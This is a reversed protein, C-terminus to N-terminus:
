TEVLVNDSKVDAHVVGSAHSEELGDLLQTVIDIARTVSMPAHEVVLRGLRPGVIREMVLYPVGDVQGYDFVSVVNRHAVRAAALAETRFRQIVHPDAVLEPRPIKLAVDRQLATQRAAYVVGMGGVGLLEGLVYGAIVDGERGLGQLVPVDLTSADDSM